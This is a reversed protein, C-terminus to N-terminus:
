AHIVQWREVAFLQNAADAAVDGIDELAELGVDGEVRQMAAGALVAGDLSDQLRHANGIGM